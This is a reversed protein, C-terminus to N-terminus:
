FWCSLCHVYLTVDLGTRTVMKAASFCYTNCIRLTDTTRTIWCAFRTRRITAQPGDPQVSNKSLNELLFNSITFRTNQSETCSKDSVNRMRLLIKRSVVKFTCQDEHSTGNNKNSKLWVQIKDVSKRFIFTMNWSFGDLYLRTTGRPRVSPRVSTIFCIIAKRFKELAGLFFSTNWCTRTKIVYLYEWITTKM